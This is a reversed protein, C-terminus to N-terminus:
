TYIPLTLQLPPITERIPKPLVSLDLGKIARRAIEKPADNADLLSIVWDHTVPDCTVSISRRAFAKGVGYRINGLSFQGNSLVQRQFPSLAALHDYVRQIDFLRYEEERAYPRRPVLLEPHAVFPPRGDCDSARSPFETNHVIRERHLAVQLTQLTQTSQDDVAFGDLTRHTREIQAQDTPRHPRIFRQAVGLGKLWFTLKSPFSESILVLQNDTLLSDPLTGVEMFGQRLIEQLELWTLRRFSNGKKISIAVSALIAAGYVDRLDCIAALDGDQLRVMERIDLQWVEHVATAQIVPARAQRKEHKAVKDPCREKFFAALRSPHPLRENLFQKRLNVLVRRAGWKKHSQKLQLAEDRVESPYTGLSGTKPRGRRRVQLGILGQKRFRRAWKRVTWESRGIEQAIEKYTKEQLLDQCLREREHENLLHTKSM